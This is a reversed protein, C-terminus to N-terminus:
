NKDGKIKNAIREYKEKDLAAIRDIYAQKNDLWTCFDLVSNSNTQDQFQAVLSKINNVMKNGRKRRKRVVFGHKEKFRKLIM